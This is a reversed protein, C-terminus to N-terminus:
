EAEFCYLANEAECGSDTFVTWKPGANNSNGSNGLVAGDNTWNDCRYTAVTQGHEDTGTWVRGATVAGEENLVIPSFIQGSVLEDKNSAIKVGNVLTWVGDYTLRDIANETASSLWAKFKTPNDLHGDALTQCISDGAPVGTNGDSELWDQLRGKGTASTVFVKKGTVQYSPVAPGDNGTQFCHLRASENCSRFSDPGYNTWQGYTSATSGVLVNAPVSVGNTWDACDDGTSGKTGDEQTYTWAHDFGVRTGDAKRDIPVYAKFPSTILDTLSTTFTYGDTRIWGTSNPGIRDKADTSSDSLWAKFTGVLGAATAEAQCVNDAAALGTTAGGANDWATLDGTKIADTAFVVKGNGTFQATTNAPLAVGADSTVNNITATYQMPLLPVATTLRVVTKDSTNPSAASFGQGTPTQPSLTYNSLTEASTKDMSVSFTVDVHTYDVPSVATITPTSPAPGTGGGSSCALPAVSLPFLLLFCFPLRIKRM